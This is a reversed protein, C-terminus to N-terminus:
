AGANAALFGELRAFYAAPEEYFPMHSSNAFAALEANPLREVILRSSEPVLEDHTATVILTPATIRHLDDLRGWDKLTGTICYENPGWMTGYVDMNIGEFSRNVPAPWDDCRCIHRYYLLTIAAQYESHETTGTAEHRQMMEVTEPGLQNRLRRIEGALHPIDAAGNAIVLSKAGDPHTLAYEIALFTGWSQGLLHVRGLGLAIRVTETEAAYRRIDYLPLDAPKDSAGCGLQDWAVVRYGSDALVSHSDRLYDCPLGPGGNVLLVTEAGDGFSYAVVEHGDVPIRSMEDPKRETM